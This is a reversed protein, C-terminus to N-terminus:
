IEPLSGGAARRRGHGAGLAAPLGPPLAELLPRARPSKPQLLAHRDPGGGRQGHIDAGGPPRGAAVAAPLM